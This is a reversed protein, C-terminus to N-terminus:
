ISECLSMRTTLITFYVTHILLMSMSTHTTSATKSTEDDWYLQALPNNGTAHNYVVDLIVAIGRSHCEDVFEKYAEDRGYAKDMAFFFAPSYGWSDNGDFEQTPMLEIATVGLEELYDLKAMAGDLDSTDSFDRLLLEYIILNDPDEVEFDAVRWTYNDAGTTTVSVIGRGGDPYIMESAPYTSSAIYKDNDPDLVKRSYPDAIRLTAGDTYGLYYQFAYEETSNLGDVTIWWCEAASDRYMQSATTNSLTWDNFDGLIYGFDHSDGNKDSDHLVFTITSSDVINIGTDVGAPLPQEIISAAVFGEYTEDVVPIFSDSEIGKLTGDESRIVIGISEISTEESDFWERISPSLTISWVNDELESMKCKAINEGWDAAVYLWTGADVVGIHVYVDGTYDYLASTSPAAFTITLEEDANPEEPSYSLGEVIDEQEDDDDSDTDPTTTGPIIIDTTDDTCSFNITAVAFLVLLLLLSRLKM